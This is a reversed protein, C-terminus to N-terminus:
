AHGAQAEKLVAGTESLRWWARSDGDVLLIELELALGPPSLDENLEVFYVGRRAYVTWLSARM